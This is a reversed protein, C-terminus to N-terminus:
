GFRRTMDALEPDAEEEVTMATPELAMGCKPCTGPTDQLIEPHMPCTYEAQSNAAQSKSAGGHRSQAQTTQSSLYTVPDAEFKSLCSQGCFFYTIEEHQYQFRASQPDVTMGCVPDKMSAEQDSHDHGHHSHSTRDNQM